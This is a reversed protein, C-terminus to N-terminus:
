LDLKKEVKDAVQEAADEVKYAAKTVMKRAKSQQPLMAVAVAGAAVGLGMSIAWGKMEMNEGREEKTHGFIEFISQFLEKEVRSASCM